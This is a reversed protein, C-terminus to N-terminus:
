EESVDVQEVVRIRGDQRVVYNVKCTTVPMGDTAPSIIREGTATFNQKSDGRTRTWGVPGDANYEYDDRWQKGFVILPDAYNTNYTVSQIRGQSDYTREENDPCYFTIFAPCSWNTGNSVFCGVDIRNTELPSGPEVPRRDHWPVSLEVRSSDENLPNIQIANADGCLVVWRWELQQGNLDRSEEASVVLRRRQANGRFIRAIVQPTDFLREAVLPDFVERGLTPDKDEEIVKVAVLPPVASQTMDHALRIMKEQDVDEYRFVPPHAAGTFYDEQSKLRRSSARFIMQVTPSLVHNDILFQKVDPRFAALTFAIARLFPQDSGSSGQSTIMYPTNTFYVDGHGEGSEGAANHGPRYDHHCPYFYIQNGNFQVLLMAIGFPNSVVARSMSRWYQDGVAAVSANGLVVGSHLIGSPPGWHLNLLRAEPGYEIFTLQPFDGHPLKSHGGDRNDYYDGRNGAATGESWWQQLLDTLRPDNSMSRMGPMLPFKRYIGDGLVAVDSREPIRVQELIECAAALPEIFVAEETSVSDPIIHLNAEPLTLFERFAGPHRVIGLV